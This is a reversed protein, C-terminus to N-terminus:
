LGLDRHRYYKRDSRRSPDVADAVSVIVDGVHRRGPLIAVAGAASHASITNGASTTALRRIHATSSALVTTTTTTTSTPAACTRLTAGSTSCRHFFYSWNVCRGIPRGAAAECTYSIV